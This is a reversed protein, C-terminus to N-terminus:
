RLRRLRLTPNRILSGRALSSDAILDQACKSLDGEARAEKADDVVGGSARVVV